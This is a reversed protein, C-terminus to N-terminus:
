WTARTSCGYRAERLHGALRIGEDTGTPPMRIDTVVLDPRQAQVAEVLADADAALAAIEFGDRELVLALGERMLAEDEGIVVRM